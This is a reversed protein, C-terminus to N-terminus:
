CIEVVSHWNLKAKQISGELDKSSWCALLVVWVQQGQVMGSDDKGLL